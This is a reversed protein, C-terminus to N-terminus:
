RPRYGPTSLRERRAGANLHRDFCLFEVAAGNASIELASSLQVADYGRLGHRRALRGARQVVAGTLDVIWCSAWNADLQEALRRYQAASIRREKELRAFVAFMEVYTILATAIQDAARLREVVLEQGAEAVYLKILAQHRSLRDVGIKWCWRPPSSVRAGSDFRNPCCSPLAPLLLSAGNRWANSGSMKESHKHHAFVAALAIFTALALLSYM